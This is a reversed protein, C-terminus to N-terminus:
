NPGVWVQQLGWFDANKPCIELVRGDRYHEIEHGTVITRPAMDAIIRRARSMYDSPFEVDDDAFHVHTGTARDLLLNRKAPLGTGEGRVYLVVPYQACIRRVRAEDASDDGVVVEHPHEAGAFLSRLCRELEDPRDLTCILVSLRIEERTGASHGTAISEQLMRRAASSALHLDTRGDHEDVHFAM